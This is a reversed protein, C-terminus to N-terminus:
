KSANHHIAEERKWGTQKVFEFANNLVDAAEEPSPVARAFKAGDCTQLLRIVLEKHKGIAPPFNRALEFTTQEMADAGFEDEIYQRLVDSIQTFFEKVKGKVYLSERGIRKLNKMASEYPPEKHIPAQPQRQKRVYLIVGALAALFLLGGAAPLLYEMLDLKPEAASEIADVDPETSGEPIVSKIEVFLEPTELNHPNGETDPWEYVYVPLKLRGTDFAALTFVIKAISGEKIVEVNIVEFPEPKLLRVQPAVEEGADAKLTIIYFIRDGITATEPEVGASIAVEAFSSGAMLLLYIAVPLTFIVHAKFKCLRKLM